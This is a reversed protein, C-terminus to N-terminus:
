CGWIGKERLATVAPGFTAMMAATVRNPMCLAMAEAAKEDGPGLPYSYDIQGNIPQPAQSVLKLGANNNKPGMLHNSTNCYVIPNGKEDKAVQDWPIPSPPTEDDKYFLFVHGLVSLVGDSGGDGKRFSQDDGSYKWKNFVLHTPTGEKTFRIRCFKYTATRKWCIENHVWYVESAIPNWVPDSEPTPPAAYADEGFFVAYYTVDVSDPDGDVSSEDWFVSYIGDNHDVADKELQAFVPAVSFKYDNEVPSPLHNPNYFQYRTPGYSKDVLTKGLAEGKVHEALSVTYTHPDLDASASVSISAVTVRTGWPTKGSIDHSWSFGHHSNSADLTVSGFNHSFSHGGFSISISLGVEVKQYRGCSDPDTGDITVTFPGVDYDTM